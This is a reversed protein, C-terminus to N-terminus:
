IGRAKISISMLQGHLPALIRAASAKTHPKECSCLDGQKETGEGTMKPEESISPYDMSLTFAHRPVICKMKGSQVGRDSRGIQQPHRVYTLTVVKGVSNAKALLRASPSSARCSDKEQYAYKTQVLQFIIVSRLICRRTEARDDLNRSVEPM